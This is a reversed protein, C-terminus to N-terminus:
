LHKFGAKMYTWGTILTLATALLLLHHGLMFPAPMAPAIILFGTALLQTTTKWKALKTVPMQVNKPGLYERLGSILFERLFILLVLATWWGTLVHIDVLVVLLVAVAIKDAIPDLFTGFGSIVNLKRALWGDLFDTLAAAIYFGLAMWYMEAYLAFAIVPLVAIRAITLINPLNRM